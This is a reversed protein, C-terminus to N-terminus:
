PAEVRKKKRKVKVIKPEAVETKSEIVVSPLSPLRELPQLTARKEPLKTIVHVPELGKRDIRRQEIHEQHHKKMKLLNLKPTAPRAFATTEKFGHRSLM